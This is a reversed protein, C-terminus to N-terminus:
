GINALDLRREHLLGEEARCLHTTRQPPNHGDAPLLPLQPHHDTPAPAPIGHLTHANLACPRLEEATGTYESLHVM